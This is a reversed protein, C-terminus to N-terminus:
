TKVSETERATKAWQRLHETQWNDPLFGTIRSGAPENIVTEVSQPGRLVLPLRTEALTRSIDQLDGPSVTPGASDMIILDFPEEDTFIKRFKTINSATEVLCGKEELDATLSFIRRM